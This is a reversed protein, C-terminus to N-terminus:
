GVSRHGVLRGAHRRGEGGVGQGPNAVGESAPIRHRAARADGVGVARVGEEGRAGGEVDPPLPAPPLAALNEPASAQLDPLPRRATDFIVQVFM